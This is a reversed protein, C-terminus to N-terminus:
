RQHCPPGEVSASLRSSFANRLTYVAGCTPSLVMAVLLARCESVYQLPVAVERM